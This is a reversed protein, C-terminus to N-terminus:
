SELTNYLKNIEENLKSNLGHNTPPADMLMRALLSFRSVLDDKNEGNAIATSLELLKEEMRAYAPLGEERHVDDLHKILVSISNQAKSINM